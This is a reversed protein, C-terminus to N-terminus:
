LPPSPAPSGHAPVTAQGPVTVVCTSPPPIHGWPLAALDLATEPLTPVLVSPPALPSRPTQTGQLLSGPSSAALGAPRPARIHMGLRLKRRQVPHRGQRDESPGVPLLARGGPWGLLEVGARVEQAGEAGAGAPLPSPRPGGQGGGPGQCVAHGGASTSAGSGGALWAQGQTWAPKRSPKSSAALIATVTIAPRTDCPPARSQQVFPVRHGRAQATGQSLGHATRPSRSHAHLGAEEPSRSDM